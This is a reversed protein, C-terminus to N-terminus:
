QVRQIPSPFPVGDNVYDEVDFLDLWRARCDEPNVSKMAKWLTNFYLMPVHWDEDFKPLEGQGTALDIPKRVPIHGPAHFEGWIQDIAKCMVGTYILSPAVLFEMGEIDLKLAVKGERGDNHSHQNSYTGYVKEPMKRGVIENEIWRAFHIIAVTESQSSKGLRNVVSFGWEANETPNHDNHWFTISEGETDGLGAEVPVYRWGMADYAKKLLAHRERHAPNPEFAFACFDRPDRTEPPGFALEFAKRANEANPYKSPELLFRSHTGINAGADLFVHYCGDGLKKKEGSSHQQSPVFQSPDFNDQLGRFRVVLIGACVFIGVYVM